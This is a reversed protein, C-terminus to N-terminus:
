TPINLWEIMWDGAGQKHTGNVIQSAETYLQPVRPEQHNDHDEDVDDSSPSDSSHDSENLVVTVSSSNQVVDAQKTSSSEEEPSDDSAVYSIGYRQGHTLGPCYGQWPYISYFFDYGLKTSKNLVLIHQFRRSHLPTTTYTSYPM